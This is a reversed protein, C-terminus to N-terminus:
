RRRVADIPEARALREAALAAFTWLAHLTRPVNLGAAPGTATFAARPSRDAGLVPVAICVRFRAAGQESVAFRAQRIRAFEERLGPTEDFGPLPARYAFLLRGGATALAPASRQEDVATWPADPSHIRELYVVRPGSLVALGVTLRLSVYLESLCPALLRRLGADAADPAAAECLEYVAGQKCLMGSAVLANVLRHTTSKALGARRGIETLTLPHASSRLINLVTAARGVSGTAAPVQQERDRTKTM